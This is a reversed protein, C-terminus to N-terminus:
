FGEFVGLGFLAFDYKVPDNKDLKRLNTDLEFLAKWDNQKRLLLKLKRAVNGSHVDLPCSLNATNHTKWIGFDVGKKDNRVMWRLFMNIRKAASNKLPDSIHKQTRQQHEVEFFVQKLHHIVNKYNTENNNVKLVNELGQHKQYIHQLSKVFQNLDIANFTRHVFGDLVKLDNKQHNMIFDYPANDFLEMMKYSNKIIMTRNGWSITATLFAAIEIDEKKSFQHPIQIPDSEIFKPNNYLIVKEDLFEKLERQNM